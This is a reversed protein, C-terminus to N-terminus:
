ITNKREGKVSLIRYIHFYFALVRFSSALKSMPLTHEHQPTISIRNVNKFNESM